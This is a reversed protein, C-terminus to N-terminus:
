PKLDFRLLASLAMVVSHHITFSGILTPVSVEPSGQRSSNVNDSQYAHTVPNIDDGDDVPISLSDNTSSTEFEQILIPGSSGSLISNLLLLVFVIKISLLTLLWQIIHDM